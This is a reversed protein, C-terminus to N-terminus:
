LKVKGITIIFCMLKIFDKISKSMNLIDKYINLSEQFEVSATLRLKLIDVELDNFIFEKLQNKDHSDMSLDGIHLILNQLQQVKDILLENTNIVTISSNNKHYIYLEDSISVAKSLRVMVGFFLLKDEGYILKEELSVKLDKYVKELFIRAFVKGETGKSMKKCNIIKLVLEQKEENGYLLPVSPKAQWRKPAPVRRSGFFIADLDSEIKRSLISLTELELEDDPDVFVIYDGKASFVGARRAHYTGLNQKNRVIRIRPESEAHKEIIKISQDSGCDDVFIMEFDTYTQGQLSFLCREIHREVNYVPLVISFRL